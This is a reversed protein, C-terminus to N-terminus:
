GERDSRAHHELHTSAWALAPGEMSMSGLILLLLKLWAPARFGRHTLYRHYGITVGIAVFFYMGALLALDIGVVARQWLQVIALGMAVLPGLVAATLLVKLVPGNDIRKVWQDPPLTPSAVAGLEETKYIVAMCQSGKKSPMELCLAM